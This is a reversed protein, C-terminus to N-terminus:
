IDEYHQRNLFTTEEEPLLKKKPQVMGKRIDEFLEQASKVGPMPSAHSCPAELAQLARAELDVKEICGEFSLSARAILQKLQAQSLTGLM